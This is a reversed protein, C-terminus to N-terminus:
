VEGLDGAEIMHKIINVGKNFRNVVGIVLIKGSEHQARQMDLAVAYTRAAPKKACYM